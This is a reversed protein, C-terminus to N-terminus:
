LLVIETIRHQSGPGSTPTPGGNLFRFALLHSSPDHWSYYMSGAAGESHDFGWPLNPNAGLADVQATTMNAATLLKLRADNRGVWASLAEQAYAKDDAPFTIPDFAGGSNVALPHGLLSNVVRLTLEDGVNNYFLCYSTGAAGQCHIFTFHQDFCSVCHLQTHLLGDSSELQDLRTTDGAAWATIAAKAYESATGPYTPAPPPATTASSAAPGGSLAPGSGLTGSGNQGPAPQGNPNSSSTCSAAALLVFVTACVTALRGARSLKSSM